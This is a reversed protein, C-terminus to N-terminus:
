KQWNVLLLGICDSAVNGSWAKFESEAEREYRYIGLIAGACCDAEQEFMGLEDYREVHDLFPQLEEDLIQAAAKEPSGANRARASIPVSPTSRIRDSVQLL